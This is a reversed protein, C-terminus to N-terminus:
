QFTVNLDTANGLATEIDSVFTSLHQQITANLQFTHSANYTNGASDTVTYYASLSVFNGGQSNLICYQVIAASATVGNAAM